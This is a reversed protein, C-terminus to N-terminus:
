SVLFTFVHNILVEILISVRGFVFPDNDGGEIQTAVFNSISFPIVADSYEHVLDSLGRLICRYKLVEKVFDERFTKLKSKCRIANRKNSTWFSRTM